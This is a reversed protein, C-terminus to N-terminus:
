KVPLCFTCVLYPAFGTDFVSLTLIPITCRIQTSMHGKCNEKNFLAVVNTEEFDLEKLNEVLVPLVTSAAPKAVDLYDDLSVDHPMSYGSVPPSSMVPEEVKQKSPSPRNTWELGRYCTEAPDVVFVM